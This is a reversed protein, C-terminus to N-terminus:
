SSVCYMGMLPLQVQTMDKLFGWRKWLFRFMCIFHMLVFSVHFTCYNNTPMQRHRREGNSLMEVINRRVKDVPMWYFLMSIFCQM